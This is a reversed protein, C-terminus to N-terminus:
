ESYVQAWNLMPQHSDGNVEFNQVKGGNVEFNQVKCAICLMFVIVNLVDVLNRKKM